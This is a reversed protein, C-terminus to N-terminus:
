GKLTSPEAQADVELGSDSVPRRGTWRVIAVGCFVLAAAIAMRSDFSEHLILVGLTVAIIPNIYAYLSVFSVPLHRLAYTYAVFGGIAGITSLYVLSWTTAATFSLHSWEGQVTGAATMFIGGALMQCATTGLVHDKRAHRRSYASGLSWGISAVQLAVVGALFGRRDGSSFTLDPWVLVVIGTFGIILGLIINPRLREGDPIAAEVASMWFPNSAIVVAALGSSIWQEAIVVGGNGLGLMLFGLLAIGGWRDRGPLTEGSAVVYAALLAGASLWRFGGMLMPPITELCVRIGLYTTGWVICVTIWSLYALRRQRATM